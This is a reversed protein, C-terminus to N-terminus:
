DLVVKEYIEVMALTCGIANLPIQQDNQTYEMLLWQHEAHRWGRSM